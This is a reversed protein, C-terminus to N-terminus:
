IEGVINEIARKLEIEGAVLEKNETIASYGIHGYGPDLGLVIDQKNEGTAYNLQICFQSTSFVKAKGLKLLKNAKQSRTPMLPQGRMNLVYVINPVRSDSGEKRQPLQEELNNSSTKLSAAGGKGRPAKLSSAVSSPALVTSWPTISDELQQKEEAM